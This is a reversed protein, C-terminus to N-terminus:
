MHALEQIAPNRVDILRGYCLGDKESLFESKVRGTPELVFVPDRYVNMALEAVCARGQPNPVRVRDTGEAHIGWSYARPIWSLYVRSPPTVEVTPFLERNKPRFGGHSLLLQQVRRAPIRM